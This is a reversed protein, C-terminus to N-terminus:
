LSGEDESRPVKPNPTFPFLVNFAVVSFKSEMIIEKKLQCTVKLSPYVPVDFVIVPCLFCCYYIKSMPIISHCPCPPLDRGDMPSVPNNVDKLLSRSAILLYALSKAAAAVAHLSDVVMADVFSPVSFTKEDNFALSRVVAVEM